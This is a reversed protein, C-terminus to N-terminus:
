LGELNGERRADRHGTRHSRRGRFSSEVERSERQRSLVSVTVGHAFAMVLLFIGLRGVLGATSDEIDVMSLVALVGLCVLHFSVTVLRTMSVNSGPGDESSALFRRGQRYLFQGDAVVLLVGVILFTFYQNDAMLVGTRQETFSM